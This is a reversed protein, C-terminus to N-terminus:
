ALRILPTFGASILMSKTPISALLPLPAFAQRHRHQLVNGDARFAISRQDLLPTPFELVPKSFDGGFGFRENKLKARSMSMKQGCVGSLMRVGKANTDINRTIAHNPRLTFAVASFQCIQMKKVSVSPEEQFRQRGAQRNGIDEHEEGVRPRFRAVMLVPDHLRREEIQDCGAGACGRPKEETGIKSGIKLVRLGQNAGVGPPLQRILRPRELALRNKM